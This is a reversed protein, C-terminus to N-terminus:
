HFPLNLQQQKKDRRRPPRLVGMVNMKTLLINMASLGAKKQRQRPNADYDRTAAAQLYHWQKEPIQSLLPRRDFISRKTITYEENHPGRAKEMFAKITRVQRGRRRRTAEQSIQPLYAQLTLHHPFAQAYQRHFNDMIERVDLILRPPIFGNNHLNEPYSMIAIAKRKADATSFVRSQSLVRVYAKTEEGMLHILQWLENDTMKNKPIVLKTARFLSNRYGNWRRAEELERKSPHP